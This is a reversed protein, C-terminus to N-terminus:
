GIMCEREKMGEEILEKRDGKYALGLKIKLDAIEEASKRTLKIKILKKNKM